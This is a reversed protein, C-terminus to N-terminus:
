NAKVAVASVYGVVGTHDGTIDGSNCQHLIQIETAGLQKAASLVAVTPGGGCAEAHNSELDSMLKEYNFQEIHKITRSDITNAIDYPYYHSLDTSAVLLCNKGKLVNALANGLEFCLASSQDGMVIPLIKVDGLSQQLFPLQVEIAHEAGHGRSSVEIFECQTMIADRLSEDVSMIGLPTKYATGNYVSIGKFYERHSPSVIVACDYKNKQLLKFGHAATLGSYMYGAHPSILAVISGHPKEPTAKKLMADVDHKLTRQDGSYFMGAVAPQRITQTTM